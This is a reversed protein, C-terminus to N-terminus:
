RRRRAATTAADGADRRETTGEKGQMEVVATALQRIWHQGVEEGYGFEGRYYGSGEVRLLRPRVTSSWQDQPDVKAGRRILLEVVDAFGQCAAVHLATRGDIDSFNVDVGSDLIEQIGDLDGESALYMLRIDSGIEAPVHSGDLVESRLSEDRDDRPALSSQRGLTFRGTSKSEMAPSPSIHSSSSTPIPDSPNSEISSVGTEPNSKFEARLPDEDLCRAPNPRM